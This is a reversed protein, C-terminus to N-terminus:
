RLTTNRNEPGFCISHSEQMKPHESVSRENVMKEFRWNTTSKTAHYTYPRLLKPPPSSAISEIYYIM